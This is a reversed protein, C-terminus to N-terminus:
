AAAKEHKVRQGKLVEIIVDLIPQLAAQEKDTNCILTKGALTHQKDLDFTLLIEGKM